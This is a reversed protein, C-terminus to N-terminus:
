EPKRENRKGIHKLKLTSMQVEQILNIRWYKVKKISKYVLSIEYNWKWITMDLICYYLLIKHILM